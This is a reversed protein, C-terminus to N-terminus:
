PVRVMRSSTGRQRGGTVRAAGLESGNLIPCTCLDLRGAVGGAAMAVAGRDGAAM